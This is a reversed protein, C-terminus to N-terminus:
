KLNTTQINDIDSNIKLIIDSREIILRECKVAACRRESTPLSTDISVEHYLTWDNWMKTLAEIREVLM